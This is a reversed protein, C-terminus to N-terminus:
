IPKTNDVIEELNGVVILRKWTTGPPWCTQLVVMKANTKANLYILNNDDIIKQYLTKYIYAKNKYLIIIKDGEKLDKISYFLANYEKINWPYDTSHGFIYVLGEEGPLATLKAHAVGKKLVSLYEDKNAPDINPFVETNLSIKPIILSFNWDANKPLGMKAIFKAKNQEELINLNTQTDQEAFPIIVNTNSVFSAVQNKPELIIQNKYHNKSLNSAIEAYAIPIISIAVGMLGLFFSMYAAGKLFDSKNISSASVPKSYNNIKASNIPKRIYNNTTAKAYNAQNLPPRQTPAAPHINSNSLIKPNTQPQNQPRLPTTAEKNNLIQGIIRADYIVVNKGERYPLSSPLM